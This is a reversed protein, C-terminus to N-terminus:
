VVCLILGFPFNNVFTSHFLFVETLLKFNNWLLIKRFLQKWIHHYSPMKINTYTIYILWNCKNINWAYIKVELQFYIFIHYIFILCMFILSKMFIGLIPIKVIDIYCSIFYSCTYYFYFFVSLFSPVMDRWNWTSSNNSCQFNTFVCYFWLFIIRSFIFFLIYFSIFYVVHFLVFVRNKNRQFILKHLRFRNRHISSVNFTAFWLYVKM